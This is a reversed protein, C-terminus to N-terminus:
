PAIAVAEGDVRLGFEPAPTGGFQDRLLRPDTDFTRGAMGWHDIFSIM